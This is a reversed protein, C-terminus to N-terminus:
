TTELETFEHYLDEPADQIPERASYFSAMHGSSKRRDDRIIEGSLLLAQVARHTTTRTALGENIMGAEDLWVGGRLRELITSKGLGGLSRPIGQHENLDGSPKISYLWAFRKSPKQRWVRYVSKKRLMSFLADEVKSKSLKTLNMIGDLALLDDLVLADTIMLISATVGKCKPRDANTKVTEASPWGVGKVLTTM